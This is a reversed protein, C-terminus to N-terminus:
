YIVVVIQIIHSTCHEPYLHLTGFDLTEIGLNKVFDVGEYYTEPYSGEASLGFGEDGLTVLHNGDLSKVYESTSKAWDYVISTDCGQCRIENSLEWAFIAPSETYRSVVAKVYTRYQEQAAENSFWSVKDGGFAAAYASIGGYDDWYNVFPIILKIGRDEAAAVVADLLQLGTPGDNIESGGPALYQFWPQGSAPKENVDNFGWVRLVKVASDQLHDFVLGVDASNTLFSCWYCNTGVLYDAMDFKAGDTGVFGDASLSTLMIQGTSTM